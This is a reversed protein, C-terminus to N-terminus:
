RRITTGFTISVRVRRGYQLIPLSLVSNVLKLFSSRDKSQAVDIDNRPFGDFTKLPTDM